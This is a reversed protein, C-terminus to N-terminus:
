TTKEKRSPPMPYGTQSPLAGQDALDDLAQAIRELARTRRHEQNRDDVARYVATKFIAWLM